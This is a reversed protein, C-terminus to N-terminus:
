GLRTAALRLLSERRRYAPFDHTEYDDDHMGAARYCAVARENEPFVVLTVRRAGRQEFAERLLMQALLKGYGRGRRAPDVILHGLWYQRYGGTLENLEGYGIPQQDGPEFLLFPHHGPKQWSLLRTATLPPPTQPALWYTEQANCVWSVVRDAWPPNFPVLRYIPATRRRPKPFAAM